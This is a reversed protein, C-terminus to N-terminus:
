IAHGAQDPTIARAAASRRNLLAPLTWPQWRRPQRRASHSERAARALRFAEAAATLDRHHQEAITAAIQPNAFMPSEPEPQAPHTGATM